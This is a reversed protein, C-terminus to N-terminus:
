VTLRRRLLQRVGDVAERLAHAHELEAVDWVHVQRAHTHRAEAAELDLDNVRDGVVQRQELCTLRAHAASHATM